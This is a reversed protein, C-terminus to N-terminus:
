NRKVEFTTSSLSKTYTENVCKTRLKCRGKNYSYSAFNCDPDALCMRKCDDVSGIRHLTKYVGKNNPRCSWALEFDRVTHKALIGTDTCIGCTRHCYVSNEVDKKWQDCNDTDKLVKKCNMGWSQPPMIDVCPESDACKKPCSGGCDISEEDQNKIGDTCTENCKPCNSGGCDVGEEDQNKIGDECTPCRAECHNGGCDIDEEDQNKIGDDCTGVKGCACCNAEPDYNEAGGFVEAVVEDNFKGLSCITTYSRCDPFTRGRDGFNIWDKTDACCEPLYKFVSCVHDEDETKLFLKAGEMTSLDEDFTALTLLSQHALVILLFAARM